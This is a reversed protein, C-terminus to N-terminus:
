GSGGFLLSLVGALLLASVAMCVVGLVFGFAVDGGEARPAAGTGRQASQLGVRSTAMATDALVRRPRPTM